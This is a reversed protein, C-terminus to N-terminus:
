PAASAPGNISSLSSRSALRRWQRLAAEEERYTPEAELEALKANIDAVDDKLQTSAQVLFADLAQAYLQSRNLHRREAEAEAAQFLDEPISVTIKM